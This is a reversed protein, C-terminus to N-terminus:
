GSSIRPSIASAGTRGATGSGTSSSKRLILRQKSTRPARCKASRPIPQDALATRGAIGTLRPLPLHQWIRWPDGKMFHKRAAMIPSGPADKPRGSACAFRVGRRADHVVSLADSVHVRAPGKRSPPPAAGRRIRRRQLQSRVPPLRPVEPLLYRNESDDGQLSPVHSDSERSRTGCRKGLAEEVFRPPSGPPETSSKMASSSPKAPFTRLVPDMTRWLLVAEAPPSRESQWYLFRRGM